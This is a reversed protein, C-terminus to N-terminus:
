FRLRDPDWAISLAGYREGRVFLPVAMTTLVSGTDRAYTQILVPRRACDPRTLRAGSARIQARTLIEHPLRVGLDMRAGRTLADSDLFFRKTRNGVLDAGPDGTIPRSYVSNHAPTWCNLDLPLAFVLGPEAALLADTRAMIQRDIAADYATHYKPPEFGSPDARAVDFLRAFRRISPGRAEEYRLELLQTLTLRREQVAQEMIAELELALRECRARLRSILGGTDYGAILLQARETGEALDAQNRAVAQTQTDIEEGAATLSRLHEDVVNVDERQAAALGAIERVRERTEGVLTGIMELADRGAGADRASTEARERAVGAAQEALQMRDRTRRVTDRIQATQGGTQTALRGVEEAVVAFGSGHEGARAAEIAANLALLRTQGAVRDIIASFEGIRVLESAAIDQVLEHVSTAQQSIEEIAGIIRAVVGLGREGEEALRDALQASGAASTAARESSDRLSGARDAVEHLQGQLRQVKDTILAVASSSRVAGSSFDLTVQSLEDLTRAFATGLEGTADDRDRLSALLWIGAEDRLRPGSGLEGTDTVAQDVKDGELM